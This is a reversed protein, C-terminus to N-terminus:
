SCGEIMPKATVKSTAELAVNAGTIKVDGTAELTLDAATKITLAEKADITIGKKKATILIEGTKKVWIEGDFASPSGNEYGHIKVGDDTLQVRAFTKDQESKSKEVASEGANLAAAAASSENAFHAPIGIAAHVGGFFTAFLGIMFSSEDLSVGDDTKNFMADIGVSAATAAGAAALWAFTANSIAAHANSASDASTAPSTAAGDGGFDINLADKTMKILANDKDGANLVLEKRTDLTIHGESRRTFDDGSLRYEKQSAKIFKFGKTNEYKGGSFYTYSSGKHIDVKSGLHVAMKFGAFFDFGFGVMLTAKGGLYVQSTFGLVAEFYDKKKTVHYDDESKMRISRGLEIASQHHPSFIQIYESGPTADFVIQNGFNDRIISKLKAAPLTLPPMNDQNYVRGTVIPLDPDGELFSVIVEQGIHPLFMGGWNKGAWNQSVRVWCSSTEDLAGKRDWHFHVKVRGYEDTWVDSGSGTVTATQPGEVIPRPTLRAARFQTQEDIATLHCTFAPGNASGGIGTEFEPNSLEYSASVVLYSKNLSQRPHETLQFLSGAGLGRVTGGGHAVEFLSQLEEIRTKALTEGAGTEAYYGPYDFVELKSQTHDRSIVGRTELKAKPKTFDYDTHSFIGTQFEQTVYWQLFRDADPSHESGEPFCPIEEYDPVTDHCGAGDAVVLKHKGNEHTFYYYLGDHEMLRSLFAFDSERYQTCYERPAPAAARALDLDSSFGHDGFIKKMIDITSDGQFIRCDASRSLFWFWPRLTAEYRAFRGYSGVYSFRSVVGDFYRTGGNRVRARVTMHQGLVDSMAIGHETSLLELEYHFLRGLTENGTMRLLLLTDQELPGSVSFPRTETNQLPM